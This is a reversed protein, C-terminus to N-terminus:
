PHVTVWEPLGSDAFDNDLKSSEYKSFSISEVPQVSIEQAVIEPFEYGLFLNQNSKLIVIGGIMFIFILVLLIKKM